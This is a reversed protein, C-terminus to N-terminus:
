RHGLPSVDADQLISRGAEEDNPPRNCTAGPRAYWYTTAAYAMTTAKWHWIEMDFKLRNAFPIADLSRIRTMTSYGVTKDGEVQPHSSFPAEFYISAQGGRSYGYYDETGTGFHSPFSEGDVYIKEDGEGWWDKSGNHIVLTDGVYVGQGTSQLYNWDMTGDGAKTQIPYQQRWNAHFYMSRSDWPWSGSGIEGLTADVPQTGLNVLEIKCSRSFPMVWFCRMTGSSDVAIAWGQYRHIGIGSSFFDSVPCWVTQVGDFAIRLVTSRMAQAPDKASVRVALLRLAAPGDLTTAMSAGSKLLQSKAPLRKVLDGKMLGPHLLSQGVSEILQAASKLSSLTFTEVRTLPAYTRYNIRYYCRGPKDYTVKCHKAYPIPLYLNCGLSQVGALPPKITGFGNLFHAEDPPFSPVRKESYRREQETETGGGLLYRLNEEIVPTAADDLYIRVIATPDTTAKFFCVIAGPGDADMMVYEKRGNHDETRLYNGEDHNAFWGPKDPSVSRRDCSTFEKSRYAPNPWRALANRDIMEKLLSKLSVSNEAVKAGAGLEKLMFDWMDKYKESPHGPFRLYCTAGREQALKQFGLGWRPSHVLYPMEKVDAPKTLGLTYEFYIPPSDKGVLADPSWKSILPLLEERRKLSEAFSCGWAPVGWEVGPVWEQM